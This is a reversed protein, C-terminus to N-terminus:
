EYRLSDIPNRNSAKLVHTLMVFISIINVIIVAEIMMIINIDIRYAFDSLWKNMMLYAAPIAFISSLLILKLIGSLLLSGIEISSSGLIKRIGIEKKRMETSFSILGFLGLCAILITFISFITFLIKLNFESKYDSRIVDDFFEYSFPFEPQFSSLKSKLYATTEKIKDPKIKVSLYYDNCNNDILLYFPTIQSYFPHMHFDKVVGIVTRRSTGYPSTHFITKGIPNEWGIQRVATESLIVSEKEDSSYERSFKRGSIMKMGYLDVFNYDITNYNINFNVDDPKGPWGVGGGCRTSNPLNISSSVSIIDPNKVLENKLYALDSKSKRSDLDVVIINDKEYGLDKNSVYNMQDTVVISCFVMFITFVFQIIVLANRLLLKRSKFGSGSFLSLPRISSLTLAPFIGACFSIIMMLAIMTLLRQFDYIINFHIDRDVFSNFYPLVIEVLILTIIFSCFTLIFTEVMIQKIIQTKEAGIIKRVGIEKARQLTRATTLNIYNICAIILIILAICGYFFIINMNGNIKNESVLNSKLHIDILPQLSFKSNNLYTNSSHNKLIDPIKNLLVEPSADKRLLFYTFYVSFGWSNKDFVEGYVRTGGTLSIPIIFNAGFHSNKPIDKYVGKVTLDYRGAAKLTKGLPNENNFYKKAMSKSVLISYPDSLAAAGYIVDFSFIQFIEPDAYLVDKEIYNKDKYSIQESVSRMRASNEIEPCEAKLLSALPNPLIGSSTVGQSSKNEAIIRYIRDSNENHKDYSFEYTIFLYTLFVPVLAIAFGFINIFSYIKYKTLYRFAILFYNKLM